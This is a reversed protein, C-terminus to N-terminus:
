RVRLAAINDDTSHLGRSRPLQVRAQLRRRLDDAVMADEAFGMVHVQGVTM